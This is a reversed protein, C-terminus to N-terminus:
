KLVIFVELRMVSASKLSKIMNSKNHLPNKALVTGANNQVAAVLANDKDANCPVSM